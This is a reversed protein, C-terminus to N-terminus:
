INFILAYGYQTQRRIDSVEPSISPRFKKVLQLRFDTELQSYKTMMWYDYRDRVSGNEVCRSTLYIRPDGTLISVIKERDADEAGEYGNNLLWIVVDMQSTDVALTQDRRSLQAMKQLFAENGKLLITGLGRRRYHPATFRHHLNWEPPSCRTLVFSSVLNLTRLQSEFSINDRQILTGTRIQSKFTLMGEDSCLVVYLLPDEHIKEAYLLADHKSNDLCLLIEVSKQCSETIAETTKKRDYCLKFCKQPAPEPARYPFQSAICDFDLKREKEIYM